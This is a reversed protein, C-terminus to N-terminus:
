RMESGALAHRRWGLVRRSAVVTALRRENRTADAIPAVSPAIRAGSPNVALNSFQEIPRCGFQPQGPALQMAGARRLPETTIQQDSGEDM